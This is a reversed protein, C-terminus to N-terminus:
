AMLLLGVVAILSGIIKRPLDEREKLFIAAAIFVLVVKFTTIASVLSLNAVVTVLVVWSLQQLFRLGSTVATDNLNHQSKQGAVLAALALFLSQSGWSIWTGSTIGNGKILAREATLVVGLSLGSLVVLFFYRDFRWRTLKHKRSVLVVSVLLLVTGLIQVPKLRESLFLSALVITVPTYVNSILSFTGAEVNRQAIYGTALAIAGFIGCTAALWLVTTLSDNLEPRKFLYLISSLAATILMVRFAFDIQGTDTDRRTALHRRQLPSATAAIFYFIYALFAAMEKIM